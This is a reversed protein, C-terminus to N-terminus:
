GATERAIIDHLERLVALIPESAKHKGVRVMMRGEAIMKRRHVDVADLMEKTAGEYILMAGPRAAAQEAVLSFDADPDPKDGFRVYGGEIHASWFSTGGDPPVSTFTESLSFHHGALRDCNEAVLIALLEKIREIWPPGAFIMKM